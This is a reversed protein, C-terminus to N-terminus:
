EWEWYVGLEWPGINIFISRNYVPTEPNYSIAPTSWRCDENLQAYFKM